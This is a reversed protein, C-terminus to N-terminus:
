ALGEPSCWFHARRNGTSEVRIIGSEIGAVLFARAKNRGLDSAHARNEFDKGSIGPRAKLLEVLPETVTGLSTPDVEVFRGQEYRFHLPSTVSIRQKFVQLKLDSLLGGEDANTIKYAIDVAAELDSSGRYDQSTESKGPHHLILLTAGMAALSRYLNMHTRVAQAENENGVHFAIFGDVIVLPKRECRNVWEIIIPAGAGPPEEGIWRGFTMFDDNEEIGLRVFRDLVFQDPNERDLILVPRKSTQRGLFAEGKSVAYGLASAFTSKGSGPRGSILCLSKRPIIGEVDWEIQRPAIDRLRHRRLDEIQKIKREAPYEEPPDAWDPGLDDLSEPDASFDLKV